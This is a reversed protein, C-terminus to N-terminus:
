LLRDAHRVTQFPALKDIRGRREWGPSIDDGDQSGVGTSPHRERMAPRM